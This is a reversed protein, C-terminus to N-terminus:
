LIPSFAIVLEHLHDECNSIELSDMVRHSIPQRQITSITSEPTSWRVRHSSESGTGPKFWDQDGLLGRGPSNGLFAKLIKVPMIKIV